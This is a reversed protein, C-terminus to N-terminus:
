TVRPQKCIDLMFFTSKVQQQITLSLCKISVKYKLVLFSDINPYLHTSNNFVYFKSLSLAAPTM